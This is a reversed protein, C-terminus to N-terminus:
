FIISLICHNFEGFPLQFTPLILAYALNTQADSLAHFAEGFSSNVGIGSDKAGSCIGLLRGRGNSLKELVPGGSMGPFAGPVGCFYYDDMSGSIM